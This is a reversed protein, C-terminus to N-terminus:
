IDERGLPQYSAPIAHFRREAGVFELRVSGVNGCMPQRRIKQAIVFTVNKEYDRYVVIGADAKNRWHASGALDYLQPVPEKGDVPSGLKRPHIVMWVTCDHLKGFRKCKAILQSVFETETLNDPRSAEIENYPDLVINRVGYRIVAARARELLWDISPTHELTGLLYVRERLWMMANAADERTMRMSPGDYFPNGAWIESLDAIQNAHGTEPSFIAWKEERLRASQVIVQSLWRSKGHNPIGTVAIFQGPIYKFARDMEPWGTSLPQPGKGDYLDMVEAFFEDIDHLGEIPWPEAGDVAARLADAGFKMLCENADKSGAPMKVRYCRDRGIRKAIEQALNEGPEDMDSAILVRKVKTLLDWHTGFPEYRKDSTEPGKPAGNPLSVIHHYGVEHLTIVDIEGECIILDEGAGITDANFFVPEPDKEQVFNKDVTRYKVNRLEGDWEYPFAICDEEKETQPFWHRTKHIGFNVVTEPSIGRKEFWALLTDPRERRAPRVPKRYVRRERAPRYGEGATAGAFGCHHCKWLARGDGEVTVSLCPDNKKRRSSSCSPCITKHSGPSESRLRINHEALAARTDVM